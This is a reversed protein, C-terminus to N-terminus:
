LACSVLNTLLMSIKFVVLYMHTQNKETVSSILFSGALILIHIMSFDKQIIVALMISLCPVVMSFYLWAILIERSASLRHPGNTSM